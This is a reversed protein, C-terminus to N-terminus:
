PTGLAEIPMLECIGRPDRETSEFGLCSAITVLLTPDLIKAMGCVLHHDCKLCLHDERHRARLEGCSPEGLQTPEDDPDLPGMAALRMQANSTRRVYM